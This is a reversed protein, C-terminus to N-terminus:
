DYIFRIKGNDFIIFKWVAILPSGAPDWMGRYQFEYEIRDEQSVAIIDDGYGGFSNPGSEKVISIKKFANCIAALNNIEDTWYALLYGSKFFESVGTLRFRYKAIISDYSNIGIPQEDCIKNFLISDADIVLLIENFRPYPFTHIKHINQITDIQETYESNLIAIIGNYYKQYLEKSIEYEFLYDEDNDKMDRLALRYADLQYLYKLSDSLKSDDLIDFDSMAPNNDCSSILVSIVLLLIIKKV